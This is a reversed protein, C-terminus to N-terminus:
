RVLSLSGTVGDVANEAGPGIGLATVTGPPLETKGADKILATPLGQQQADAQLQKLATENEAHVVVKKAGHQMWTDQTDADAAVFSQLSAHCAQAIRKGDSLELDRRIVIVQKLRM